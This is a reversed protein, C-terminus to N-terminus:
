LVHSYARRNMLLVEKRKEVERKWREWFTRSMCRLTEICQKGKNVETKTTELKQKLQKIRHKTDVKSQRMRRRQLNRMAKIEETTNKRFKRFKTEEKGKNDIDMEVVTRNGVISEKRQQVNAYISCSSQWSSPIGLMDVMSSITPTVGVLYQIGLDDPIGSM